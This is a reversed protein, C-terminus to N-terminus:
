RRKGPSAALSEGRASPRLTSLLFRPSDADWIRLPGFASRLELYPSAGDSGPTGPEGRALVDGWHMLRRDVRWLLLRGHDQHPM